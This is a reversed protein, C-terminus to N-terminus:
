RRIEMSQVGIKYGRGSITHILKPKGPREIKKRLNLIHTELSNSFLDANIDWVHEILDTRTMVQEQNRLLYELLGFEKKTLSVVEKGRAVTYNKCDLILDDIKFKESITQQPRKLLSRVRASIESCSTFKSTYDDIGCNFLEIAEHSSLSEVIVLMPMTRGRQRFKKAIVQSNHKSSHELIVLDYNTSRAWFSKHESPLATDVIYNSEKLCNKLKESFPVDESLILIRM